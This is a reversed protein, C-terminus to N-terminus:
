RNRTLERQNKGFARLQTVRQSESPDRFVYPSVLGQHCRPSSVRQYIRKYSITNNTKNHHNHKKDVINGVQPVDRRHSTSLPTIPFEIPKTSTSNFSLCFEFEEEKTDEHNTKNIMPSPPPLSIEFYGSQQHSSIRSKTHNHDDAGCDEDDPFLCTKSSTSFSFSEQDQFYKM